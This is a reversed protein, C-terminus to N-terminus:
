SVFVSLVILLQSPLEWQPALPGAPDRSCQPTPEVSPGASAIAYTAVAAQIQDRAQSHRIGHPPWILFLFFYFLFCDM